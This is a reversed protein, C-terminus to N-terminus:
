QVLTVEIALPLKDACVPVFGIVVLVGVTESTPCFPKPSAFVLGNRIPLPPQVLTVEIAVKLIDSTLVNLDVPAVTVVAATGATETCDKVLVRVVAAALVTHVVIDAEQTAEVVL